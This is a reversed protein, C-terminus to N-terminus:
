KLDSLLMNLLIKENEKINIFKIGCGPIVVKNEPLGTNTWIVIADLWTNPKIKSLIDLRIKENVMFRNKTVIFAGLFSIDKTEAIIYSDEQNKIKVPINTSIRPYSRKDKHISATDTFLRETAPIGFDGKEKKKTKEVFKSIIWFFFGLVSISIVINILNSNIM